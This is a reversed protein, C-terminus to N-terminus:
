IQMYGGVLQWISILNRHLSPSTEQTLPLISTCITIKSKRDRHFALQKGIKSGTLMQKIETVLLQSM